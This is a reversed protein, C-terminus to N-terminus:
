TLGTGPRRRRQYTTTPSVGVAVYEKTEQTTRNFHVAQLKVSNTATFEAVWTGAATLGAAVAASLFEDGNTWGEGFGPIYKKDTYGSREKYALLMMAIGSPLREGTSTGVWSSTVVGVPGWEGAVLEFLEVNEMACDPHIRILLDDMIAEIHELAADLVDADDQVSGTSHRYHYVNQARSVTGLRFTVVARLVADDAISM